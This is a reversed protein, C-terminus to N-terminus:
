VSLDSFHGLVFKFYKMVVMHMFMLIRLYILIMLQLTIASYFFTHLLLLSVDFQCTLLIVLNSIQSCKMVNVYVDIYGSIYLDDTLIM